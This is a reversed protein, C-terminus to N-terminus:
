SLAFITRKFDWNKKSFIFFMRETPEVLFSVPPFLYLISLIPSCTKLCPNHFTEMIFHCHELFRFSLLCFAILAGPHPGKLLRAAHESSHCKHTVYTCGGARSWSLVWCQLFPRLLTKQFLFSLQHHGPPWYCFIKGQSTVLFLSPNTSSVEQDTGLRYLDLRMWPYSFGFIDIWYCDIQSIRLSTNILFLMHNQPDLSSNQARSFHFYLEHYFKWLYVRHLWWMCLWIPWSRM